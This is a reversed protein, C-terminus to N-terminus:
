FLTHQRQQLLPTHTAATAAFSHTNGSNCCLLTHQRQQLLPTHTAAIGVAEKLLDYRSIGCVVEHWNKSDVGFVKELVQGLTIKGCKKEGDDFGSAEAEHLFDQPVTVGRSLTAAAKNLTANYFIVVGYDVAPNGRQIYNEIAAIMVTGVGEDELLKKNNMLWILANKIRNCGGELGKEDYPQKGVGSEFDQVHLVLRGKFDKGLVAKMKSQLVTSKFENGTPIILLVNEGHTNLYFETPEYEPSNTNPPEVVSQEFLKSGDVSRSVIKPVATTSAM